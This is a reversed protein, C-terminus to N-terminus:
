PISTQIEFLRCKRELVVNVPGVYMMEEYLFQIFEGLLSYIKKYDPTQTVEGGRVVLCIENSVSEQHEGSITCDVIDAGKEQYEIIIQRWKQLLVNENLNAKKLKISLEAWDKEM